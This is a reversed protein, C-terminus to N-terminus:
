VWHVAKQAYTECIRELDSISIINWFTIKFSASTFIDQKNGDTYIGILKKVM